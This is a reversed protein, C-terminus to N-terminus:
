IKLECIVPVHDSPKDWDRAHSLIKFSVLDEKMNPTVWVHDLRRGRNNKKWDPSRYSWWTYLKDDPNYYRAVDVWDLSKQMRNLRGVEVPTHSVVKLLSKHSWVDNELPAINFDGCFVMKKKSLEEKNQESWESIDDLFTLKHAFKINIVPDPEDGGAPVYLSHIEVGNVEAIIHRCDDKGVWNQVRVKELPIKSLIAVGNYSPMGNYAVYQYGMAKVENEPFDENKAKTEQLCIVDPAEEKTLKELLELRIRISNVNWTAIKITQPM